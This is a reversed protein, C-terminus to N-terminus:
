PGYEDRLLQDLKWEIQQLRELKNEIRELREDMKEVREKSLVVDPHKTIRSEIQTQFFVFITILAVITGLIWFNRRINNKKESM